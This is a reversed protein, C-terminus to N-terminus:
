RPDLIWTLILHIWLVAILILGQNSVQNEQELDVVPM